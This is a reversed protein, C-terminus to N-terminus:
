EHPSDKRLVTLQRIDELDKPRGAQQKLCLLDELSVFPAQLDPVLDLRVAKAHAQEFDLPMEVFLDVNTRPHEASFLSFVTLGKEQIWQSRIAADAFQELPVPVLPRYGLSPFFTLARRVNDESLDLILDLDATYRLYGHAVVAVGGVILYRIGAENLGRVISEISRQEM